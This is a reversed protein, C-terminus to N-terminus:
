YVIVQAQDDHHEEALARRLPARRAYRRAHRQSQHQGHAAHEVEPEEGAADDVGEAGRLRPGNRNQASRTVTLGSPAARATGAAAFFAATSTCCVSSPM